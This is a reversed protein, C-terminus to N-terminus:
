SFPDSFVLWPSIVINMDVTGSTGGFVLNGGTTGTICDPILTYGEENVLGTVATTWGAHAGNDSVFRLPLSTENQYWSYDPLTLGSFVINDDTRPVITLVGVFLMWGVFNGPMLPVPFSLNLTADLVFDEGYIWWSNPITETDVIAPAPDAQGDVLITSPQVFVLGSIPDPIPPGGGGGNDDDGGSGDDIITGEGCYINITCGMEDCEMNLSVNGDDDIIIGPPLEPPCGKDITANTLENANKWARAADIGRHLDDREWALWTGLYDLSGQLARLYEVRNPVYVRICTTQDTYADGDPLLYGRSEAM